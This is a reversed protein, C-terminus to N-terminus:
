LGKAGAGDEELPRPNCHSGVSQKTLILASFTSGGTFLFGLFTIASAWMEQQAQRALPQNLEALSCCAEWIPRNCSDILVSRTM